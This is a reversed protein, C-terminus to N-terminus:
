RDPAPGHGSIPREVKPDACVMCLGALRDGPDLRTGCGDCLDLGKFTLDAAKVTPVPKATM